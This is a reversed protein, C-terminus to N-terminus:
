IEERLAAVMAMVAALAKPSLAQFAVLPGIDAESVQLSGAPAPVGILLFMPDAGLKCASMLYDADPVRKGTEFMSQSSQPVGVAAAFAAGTYGLRSREAKLRECFIM